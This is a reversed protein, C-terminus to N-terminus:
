LTSLVENVDGVRFGSASKSKPSERLANDFMSEVEKSMNIKRFNIKLEKEQILLENAFSRSVFEVGAFDITSINHELLFKVIQRANERLALNKGLKSEVQLIEM